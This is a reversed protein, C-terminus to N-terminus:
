GHIRWVRFKETACLRSFGGKDTRFDIGALNDDKLRVTPELLLSIQGLADQLPFTLLAEAGIVAVGVHDLKRIRRRDVHKGPSRESGELEPDRIICM